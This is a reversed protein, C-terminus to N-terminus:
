VGYKLPLIGNRIWMYIYTIDMLAYKDKLSEEKYMVNMPFYLTHKKPEDCDNQSPM